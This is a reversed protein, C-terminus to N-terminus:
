SSLVPRSGLHTARESGSLLLLQWCLAGKQVISPEKSLPVSSLKLTETECCRRIESNEAMKQRMFVWSDFM